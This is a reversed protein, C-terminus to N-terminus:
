IQSIFIFVVFLNGSIPEVLSFLFKGMLSYITKRFREQHIHAGKIAPHLIRPRVSLKGDRYGVVFFQCSGTM